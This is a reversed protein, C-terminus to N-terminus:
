REISYKSRRVDERERLEMCRGRLKDMRGGTLILILLGDTENSVMEEM